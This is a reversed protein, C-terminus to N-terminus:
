RLDIVEYGAYNKMSVVFRSAPINANTSIDSISVHLVTGDDLTITMQKPLKTSATFTLVVDKISSGTQKPTLRIKVTSSDSSVLKLNYDRDYNRIIAFPNVQAIEDATPEFISIEKDSNSITWQTMGDYITSNVSSNIAFKEGQVAINGTVAPQGASEIKFSATISKASTLLKSAEKMFAPANTAAEADNVAIALLFILLINKIKM